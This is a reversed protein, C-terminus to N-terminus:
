SCPCDYPCDDTHIPGTGDGAGKGNHANSVNIGMFMFAFVAMLIIWKKMRKEKRQEFTQSIAIPYISSCPSRNSEYGKDQGGNKDIRPFLVIPTLV